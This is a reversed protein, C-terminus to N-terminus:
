NKLERVIAAILESKYRDLVKNVAAAVREENIVAAPMNAETAFSEPESEQAKTAFSEAETAEVETAVLEPESAEAELANAFVPEAHMSEMHVSAVEAPLEAVVEGSIAESEAESECIAETQFASPTDSFVEIRQTDVGVEAPASEEHAQYTRVEPEREQPLEAPHMKPWVDVAQTDSGVEVEPEPATAVAAANSSAEIVLAPKGLKYDTEYRHVFDGILSQIEVIAADHMTPELAFIRDVHGDADHERTAEEMSIVAHDHEAEAYEHARADHHDDENDAEESVARSEASEEVDSAALNGDTVENTEAPEEMAIAVPIDEPNEQGFKTVFESFDSPDTALAPDRAISVEAGSEQMTPQLEAAAAVAGEGAPYANVELELPAPASESEHASVDHAVEEHEPAVVELVSDAPHELSRMADPVSDGLPLGDMGLAPANAIEEPLDSKSPASEPMVVEPFEETVHTKATRGVFSEPSQLKEEFKRVVSLLDTAEFPKVLVGDAKVRNGDLANFPEMNTVTLLVPVRMTEVASKVKECVELGSYGPMYVDLIILEPKESAIKKVAAAGNSVAVVNYGAEILIKSGMRQATINDDALLVKM